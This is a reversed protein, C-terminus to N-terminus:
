IYLIACSLNNFPTDAFAHHAGVRCAMPYMSSSDCFFNRMRVVYVCLGKTWVSPTGATTAAGIM